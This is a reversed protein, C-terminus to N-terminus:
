VYPVIDFNTSVCVLLVTAGGIIYNLYRDQLFCISINFFFHFCFDDFSVLINASCM